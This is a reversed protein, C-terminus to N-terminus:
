TTWSCEGEVDLCPVLVIRLGEGEAKHGPRDLADQGQAEHVREGGDFAAATEPLLGHELCHAKRAQSEHRTGDILEREALPPKDVTTDNEDEISIM